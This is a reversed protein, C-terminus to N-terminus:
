LLGIGSDHHLKESLQKLKENASSEIKSEFESQSKSFANSIATTFSYSRIVHLLHLDATSSTKGYFPMNWLWSLQKRFVLPILIKKILFKQEHSISKHLTLIRFASLTLDKKEKPKISIVPIETGNIIDQASNSIFMLDSWTSEDQTMIM